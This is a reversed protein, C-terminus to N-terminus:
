LSPSLFPPETGAVLLLNREEVFCGLITRPGVWHGKLHNGPVRERLVFCGPYSGLGSVEMLYQCWSTHLWIDVRVCVKMAPVPCSQRVKVKALVQCYLCIHVAVKMYLDFYLETWFDSNHEEIASIFHLWIDTRKGLLLLCVKWVLLM